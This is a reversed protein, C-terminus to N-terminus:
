HAAEELFVVEKGRRNSCRNIRFGLEYRSTAGSPVIVSTSLAYESNVVSRFFGSVGTYKLKVVHSGASLEWTSVQGQSLKGKEVGDVEICFTTTSRPQPQPLVWCCMCCAWCETCCGEPLYEIRLIGPSQPMQQQQYHVQQTPYGPVQQPPPYAQPSYHQHGGHHVPVAQPSYAIPASPIANGPAQPVAVAEAYVVHASMDEKSNM